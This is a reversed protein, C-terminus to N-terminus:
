QPKLENGTFYMLEAERNGEQAPKIWIFSKKGVKKTCEVDLFAPSWTGSNLHEIPGIMQHLAIHTHGYVIRSVGAILGQASLTRESPEKFEKVQSVVSKSYFMFFPGFILM